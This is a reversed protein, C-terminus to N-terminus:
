IDINNIILLLSYSRCLRAGTLERVCLVNHNSNLPIKASKM